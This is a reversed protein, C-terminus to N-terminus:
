GVINGHAVLAAQLAPGIAAIVTGFLAALIPHGSLATTIVSTLAQDIVAYQAATITILVGPVAPTTAPVILHLNSLYAQLSSAIGTLVHSWGVSMVSHSAIVLSVQNQLESLVVGLQDTTIALPSAQPGTIAAHDM